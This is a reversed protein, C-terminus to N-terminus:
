AEIARQIATFANPNIDPYRKWYGPKDLGKGLRWAQDLLQDCPNPAVVYEKIRGAGKLEQLVKFAVPRNRLGPLFNAVVREYTFTEFFRKLREHMKQEYLGKPTRTDREADYTMYPYSEWFRSPIVGGNSVVILDAADGFESVFRKWKESKNYPRTNTCLSLLAVKHRTHHEQLIREFARDIVPHLLVNKEGKLDKAPVWQERPILLESGCNKHM